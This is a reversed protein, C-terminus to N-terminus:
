RTSCRLDALETEAPTSDYSSTPKISNVATVSAFWEAVGAAIDPIYDVIQESVADGFAFQM